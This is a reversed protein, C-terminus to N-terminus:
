TPALNWTGFVGAAPTPPYKMRTQTLVREFDNPVTEFGTLRFFTLMTEGKETRSANLLGDRLRKLTAQDLVSGYYAIITPPLPLSRAVEKLQKFRGPKRRKYAELAARDTVVAQTTGDVVEDLATEVNDPSKIKAFFTEPKKGHCERDLFLRLYQQGTAPIALTQGKLGAFDKAPNDKKVVVYVVPYRYVNIALALPKLAPNKEQAWAFEYGQFVGIQLKGKAMKNTLEQWDKQRLIENNLGTEDKIFSKLTELASKEKDSQKGGTLTGSSGIRLVEIKGQRATVVAAPIALLTALGFAVLVVRVRPQRSFPQRLAMAPAGETFSFAGTEARARRAARRLRKSINLGDVIGSEWVPM